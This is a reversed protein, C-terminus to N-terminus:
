IKMIPSDKVFIQNLYVGGYIASVPSVEEGFGPYFCSIKRHHHDEDEDHGVKRVNHNLEQPLLKYGLRGAVCLKTKYELYYIDYILFWSKVSNNWAIRPTDVLEAIFGYM